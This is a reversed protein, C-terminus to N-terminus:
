QKTIAVSAQLCCQIEHTSHPKSFQPLYYMYYITNSSIDLGKTNSLIEYTLDSYCNM